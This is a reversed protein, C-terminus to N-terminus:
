RNGLYCVHLGVGNCHESDFLGLAGYAECYEHSQRYLTRIIYRTDLAHMGLRRKPPAMGHKVDM